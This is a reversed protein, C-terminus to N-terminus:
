PVITLHRQKEVSRGSVLDTTRVLLTYAGPPAGRLDLSLYSPARDGTGVPVARDFRLSTRSDGEASLGSADLVGGFARVIVNRGRNIEDLRLTLEIRLRGVGSSDPRVGYTEWYVNLTDNRGYSLSADPAVAFDALGHPVVGARPELRRAVLLDSSAFQGATFPVLVLEARARAGRGSSAVRTEVRYAYNGAPLERQWSRTYVAPGSMRVSVTDLVTLSHRGDITTVTFADERSAHALDSGEMLQRAPVDAAVFVDVRGASDGRFRTVQVPISDVRLSPLNNFRSPQTIQADEALAFFDGAFSATNMAPPGYFVFTQKADPYYWVTTVRGVVAATLGIEPAFTARVPPEGYRVMIQGRDTRWGQPSFEDSSFRLTAWTVRALFEVRAENEPTLQLPDAVLWFVRDFESRSTADLSRYGAGERTPLIQALDTMDARTAAPLLALGVDFAREAEADRGLRHDALGLVLRPRAAKPRARGADGALRAMEEFRGDGYLLAALGDFAGEHAPAAALASRYHQEALRRDIEGKEEIPSTQTNLFQATYRWDNVAQDADFQDVGGSGAVLRRDEATQYRREHILGLEWEVEAIILPDGRAIAEHEARRFMREAEVRLLPTKLKLRGLEILYLPNDADLELAHMVMKKAERRQLMDGFGLSATRTLLAGRAYYARAYGPAARTAAALVKLAASTDGASTLREAAAILSDATAQNAVPAQADARLALASGAAVALLSARARVFRRCSLRM